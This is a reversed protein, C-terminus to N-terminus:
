SKVALSGLVVVAAVIDCRPVKERASVLSSTITSTLHRGDEAPMRAIPSPPVIKLQETSFPVFDTNTGDVGPTWMVSLM